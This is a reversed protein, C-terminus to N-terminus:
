CSSFKRLDVTARPRLLMKHWLVVTTTLAWLDSSSHWCHYEHIPQFIAEKSRLYSCSKKMFHKNNKHGWCHLGGKWLNQGRITTAVIFYYSYDSHMKCRESSGNHSTHSLFYYLWNELSGPSMIVCSQQTQQVQKGTTRVSWIILYSHPRIESHDMLLM